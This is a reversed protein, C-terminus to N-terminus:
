DMKQILIAREEWDFYESTWEGGFQFALDALWEHNHWLFENKACDKRFRWPAGLPVAGSIHAKARELIDNSYQDRMVTLHGIITEMKCLWLGRKGGKLHEREVAFVREGNNLIHFENHDIEQITITM